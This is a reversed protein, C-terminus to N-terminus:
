LYKISSLKSVRIIRKYNSVNQQRAFAKKVVGELFPSSLATYYTSFVDPDADSFDLAAEM